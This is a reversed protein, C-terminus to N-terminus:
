SLGAAGAHHPLMMMAINSRKQGRKFDLGGGIEKFRLGASPGRSAEIVGLLEFRERDNGRAPQPGHRHGGIITDPKSLTSSRM